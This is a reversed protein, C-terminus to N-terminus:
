YYMNRMPPDLPAWIRESEHLKQSVKAFDYTPVGGPLNAGGGVPFGPDVVTKLIHIGMTKKQHLYSHGDLDM